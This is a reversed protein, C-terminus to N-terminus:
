TLPIPILHSGSNLSKTKQAPNLARGKPPEPQVPCRTTLFFGKLQRETHTLPTCTTKKDTYKQFHALLKFSNLFGAPM